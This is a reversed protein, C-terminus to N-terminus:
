ESGGATLSQVQRLHNIDHGATLRSIHKITEKGREAHLGFQEWQVPNLSRLLAVNALRLVRFTELAPEIAMGPYRTAWADQDFAQIPTGSAGLIMRVRYGIVIEVEALHAIIEAVSWKGPIPQRRLASESKGAILATLKGPSSELVVLPDQDRVQDLMRSIYQQPTETM